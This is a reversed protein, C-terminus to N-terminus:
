NPDRLVGAVRDKYADHCAFCGNVMEGFGSIAAAMDGNGAATSIQLTTTEDALAVTPLLLLILTILRAWHTAIIRTM